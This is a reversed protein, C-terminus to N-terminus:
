EAMLKEVAETYAGKPGGARTLAGFYEESNTSAGPEAQDRDQYVIFDEIPHSGAAKRLLPVDARLAEGAEAYSMHVGNSLTPGNDSTIGWETVDIPTTTNGFAALDAVMREMKPIGSTDTSHATAQNSYPHIVWGAVYESLNPVAAFMEDVWVSSGSGGDEAQCLIGDGYPAVAEDAEKVLM